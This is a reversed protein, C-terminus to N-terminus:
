KIVENIVQLGQRHANIQVFDTITVNGDNNVDAAKLADGTLQITGLIHLRVLMADFVDIKGDGNVDGKIIM